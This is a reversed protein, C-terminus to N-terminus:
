LSHLSFPLARPPRFDHSIKKREIQNVPRWGTCALRTREGFRLAVRFEQQKIEKPVGITM